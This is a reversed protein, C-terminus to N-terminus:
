AAGMRQRYADLTNRLLMTITMPGVGRRHPTILGARGLAAEFDVDGVPGELNGSKGSVYTAGVDMVAAGPQIWGAKVLRPVGTCAVLLDASQCIEPLNRSRSHCMTVTADRRQLLLSVPKGVINSRGIVVANAGRLEVGYHDLIALIGLPTCPFLGAGGVLLRGANVPGVGDVDKEAAIACAAAVADLGKPLPLQVLIGDVEGDQNLAEIQALLEKQSTNAPLELNRSIFGARRCARHKGAVYARSAPDEGVRLTALCPPRAGAHFASAAPREAVAAAGEAADASGTLAAVQEAMEARLKRALGLGDVVSTEIRTRGRMQGQTQVPQGIKERSPARGAARSPSAATTM